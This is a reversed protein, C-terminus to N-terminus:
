TRSLGWSRKRRAPSTAAAREPWQPLSRCRALNWDKRGARIAGLGGLGHTTSGWESAMLVQSAMGSRGRRRHDVADVWRLLDRRDRDELQTRAGVARVVVCLIGLILAFPGWGFREWDGPSAFNVLAGLSMLAGLTWTGVRAVRTSVLPVHYGGRRLVVLAALCYVIAAVASTIRLTTPLDSHMEAMRRKVM